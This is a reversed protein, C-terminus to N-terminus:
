AVRKLRVIPPAQPRRPAPLRGMRADKIRIEERLLANEAELRDNQARLRVRENLSNAAWGRTYAASFQALSIVHLM